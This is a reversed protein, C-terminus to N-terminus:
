PEAPSGAPASEAARIVIEEGDGADHEFPEGNLQITAADVRSLLLRVEETASVTLSEGQVRLENYTQEGDQWASVRSTARFELTVRLASLSTTTPAPLPPEPVPETLPPAMAEVETAAGPDQDQGGPRSMWAGAAVLIVGILLLGARTPTWGTRQNPVPLNAVEVEGDALMYRDLADEADLGVVRAYERIVGRVFVPAPLLDFRDEELSELYRLNIKTKGAITRLDVGREERRRRLWEGLSGRGLAALDEAASEEAGAPPATTKSM